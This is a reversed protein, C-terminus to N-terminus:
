GFRQTHDHVALVSCAPRNRRARSPRGPSGLLGPGLAHPKEPTAPTRASLRARFRGSPSKAMEGEWVTSRWVEAAVPTRVKVNSTGSMLAITLADLRKDPKWQPYWDGKYSSSERVLASLDLLAIAAPTHVDKMFQTHGASTYTM